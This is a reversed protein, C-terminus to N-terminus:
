RASPLDLFPYPLMVEGMVLIPLCAALVEDHRSSSACEFIGHVAKVENLVLLGEKRHEGAIGEVQPHELLITRALFAPRSHFLGHSQLGVDDIVRKPRDEGLGVLYGEGRM